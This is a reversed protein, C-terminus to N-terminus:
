LHHVVEGGSRTFSGGMAQLREMAAQGLTEWAADANALTDFVVVSTITSHDPDYIWDGHQFGAASRLNSAGQQISATAEDIKDAPLEIRVMRAYM